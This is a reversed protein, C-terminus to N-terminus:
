WPAAASLEALAPHEIGGDGLGRDDPGGGARRERAQPGTASIMNASKM